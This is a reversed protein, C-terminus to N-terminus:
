RVYKAMDALVLSRNCVWAAFRGGPHKTKGAHQQAQEFVFFGFIQSHGKVAPVGKAVLNKGIVLGGAGFHGVVQARLHGADALQHIGKAERADLQLAILGIIHEPESALWATSFPKPTFIMVPSRSRSWSTSSRMM